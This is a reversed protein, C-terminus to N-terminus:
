MYKDVPEIEKQPHDHEWAKCRKVLEDIESSEKVGESRSMRELLEFVKEINLEYQKMGNM